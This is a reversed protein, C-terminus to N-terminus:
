SPNEIVPPGSADQAVACDARGLALLLALLMQLGVSSISIAHM